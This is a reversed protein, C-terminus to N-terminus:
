KFNKNFYPTRFNADKLDKKYTQVMHEKYNLFNGIAVSSINEKNFFNKIEKIDTIGGFLILPINNIPFLKIIKKDFSNIYGENNKDILFIESIFNSSCINEIADFNDKFTNNKYNFWFLKNKKLFVPISAILAQSGLRKSILEIESIQTHILYDLSIRECGTKIANVADELSSIGGGYTLPTSLSLDAISDLLNFDPGNNNISRDICQIFIEDVGWNELNQAIVTPKGLPLYKKYGFSQVAWGNLVTIVGILRRKLM